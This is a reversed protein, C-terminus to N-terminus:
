KDKDVKVGFRQSMYDKMLKESEEEEKYPEDGDDKIIRKIEGIYQGDGQLVKTDDLDVQTDKTVYDKAETEAIVQQQSAVQTQDDTQPTQPATSVDLEVTPIAEVKGETQNEAPQVEPTQPQPNVDPM